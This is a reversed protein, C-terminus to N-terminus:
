VAKCVKRHATWHKKQCEMSCYTRDKCRGCNLLAEDGEGKKAGCGGCANTNNHKNRLTSTKFDGMGTNFMGFVGSANPQRNEMNARDADRDPEQIPLRIARANKYNDPGFLAKKMQKFTDLMLGSEKYVKKLMAIYSNPLQCGLRMACDGVMDWAGM